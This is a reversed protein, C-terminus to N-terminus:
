LFQLSTRPQKTSPFRGHEGLLSFSVHSISRYLRDTCHRGHQKPKSYSVPRYVVLIAWKPIYLDECSLLRANISYRNRTISAITEGVLASSQWRTSTTVSGGVGEEPSPHAIQSCRIMKRGDYVPGDSWQCWDWDVLRILLVAAMCMSRRGPENWRWQQRRLFACALCQAIVYHLGVVSHFLSLQIWVVLHLCRLGVIHDCAIDQNPTLHTRTASLFEPIKVTDTM